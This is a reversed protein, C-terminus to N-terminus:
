KKEKIHLMIEEKSYKYSKGTKVCALPTYESKIVKIFEQAADIMKQSPKTYDGDPDGYEDDLYELVYDLLWEADINIERPTFEYVIFPFNYEEVDKVDHFNKEIVEMKTLMLREDTEIGYYKIM